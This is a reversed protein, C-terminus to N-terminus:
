NAAKKAGFIGHNPPDREAEATSVASADILGQDALLKLYEMTWEQCRKTTVGDIPARVNQGGRPPAVKAAERELTGRPTSEKVFKTSPPDYLNAADVTGLRVLKQLDRSDKCEYNRKFELTYGNMVPEGVVHIVTGKTSDSRFDVSLDRSDDAANPIFIAFHARQSASGRYTALYVSRSAM